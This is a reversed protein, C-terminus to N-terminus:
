VLAVSKGIVKLCPQSGVLWDEKPCGVLRFSGAYSHSENCLRLSAVVVSAVTKHAVIDEVVFLYGHIFGEVIHKGSKEYPM